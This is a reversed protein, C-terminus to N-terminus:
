KRFKTVKIILEKTLLQKERVLEDRILLLLYRSDPIPVYDEGLILEINVVPKTNHSLVRIGNWMYVTLKKHSEVPYEGNIDAIEKRLEFISKKIKSLSVSQEM